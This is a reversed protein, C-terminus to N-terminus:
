VQPQLFFTIRLRPCLPDFCYTKSVNVFLLLADRYTLGDWNSCMDPIRHCIPNELCDLSM